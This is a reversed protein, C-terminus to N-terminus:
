LEKVLAIREALIDIGSEWLKEGKEVTAKTPDGIAGTDTLEHTYWTFFLSPKNDFEMTQHPFKLEPESIRDSDVLDGRNALSTSTEYEGAHVDNKSKVLEKKAPEMSEGSDMFVHLDHDYKLRLAAEKLVSTNGGHANYIFMKNFGHKKVSRGIDVVLSMLTDPKLSISGKFGMHHESLGYSITPLIPPLPPDLKKVAEKLIYMADYSDTDLPLHPGHQEISGVPLLVTDVDNSLEELEIRTMEGWLLKEVM